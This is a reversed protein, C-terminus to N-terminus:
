HDHTRIERYCRDLVATSWGVGVIAMLIVVLWILKISNVRLNHSRQGVNTRTLVESIEHDYAQKFILTILERLQLYGSDLNPAEVNGSRWWLLPYNVVIEFSDQKSSVLQAYPGFAPNRLGQQDWGTKVLERRLNKLNQFSKHYLGHKKIVELSLGEVNPQRMAVASFSLELSLILASMGSLCLFWMKRM